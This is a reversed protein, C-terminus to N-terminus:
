GNEKVYFFGLFFGGLEFGVPFAVDTTLKM